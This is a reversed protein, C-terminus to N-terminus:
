TFKFDASPIPEGDSWVIDDRLNLTITRKDESIGGNEISPIETVLSPFANNQDDFLWASCLFAPYLVSVFWMNTFLPSLTDFEQTWILAVVKKEAPPPPPETPPETAVPVEPPAETVVAEPPPETTAPVTPACAALLLSAIVLLSIWTLLRHYKSM